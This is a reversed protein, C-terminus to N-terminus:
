YSSNLVVKEFCLRESVRKVILSAEGSDRNVITFAEVIIQFALFAVVLM